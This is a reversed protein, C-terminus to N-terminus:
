FRDSKSIFQHVAKFIDENEKITLLESGNLLTDVSLINVHIASFTETRANTYLPCVLLYHEATESPHGCACVSNTALHRQYLDYNLNSMGQRLRCHQIQNPRDGSYFYPPIKVDNTSLFSKLKSLSTTQQIAIPLNNWLITTSPIFSSQYLNTRHPPVFRELPRRRHYPNITSVLPPLLDSLYNPTLGNIMKFYKLIKHRKRRENLSVFGSEAYLKAHSTGRVLGTIIRIAELNLNELINAQHKTCNDWIIDAYDFIPLIFSKYIRELAKRKLKYKLSHLVNLLLKVKSSVNNIHKDWKCDNQITIGLHKHASTDELLTDCFYLPQTPNQDRKMNLLKTKTENFNVKWKNSWNKITELDENLSEQRVNECQSSNSLSTDDAFLKIVSQINDVIDNIYVLFLLPGLVSGQPVGATVVKEDSNDGKIVVKQKRKKLYSEFWKLLRGRIGIADLKLLLGRHWVRDFAKSIDFYISQSTISKDYNECLSNYISLLQNVTSDGPLFGSQSDTLINNTTLYQLIHRHICREFVKGTCSLLSIPRYNTCDNKNGKKFIPTINATKWLSPFCGDNLCRNFFSTLHPVIIDVSAKLLRNHIRDPGVAKNNELNKIVNRVESETLTIEQLEQPKYNVHPLTDDNDQLTSQQIFFDNLVNAKSKNSYHLEGNSLIPPIEDSDMGKKCMYKNVVKWWEKNGFLQPNNITDNLEDYYQKKRKRIQEIVYNRFNRFTAWDHESNTIKAKRHIKNRRKLLIKIERTIWPVDKPRVTITKSPMCEQAIQFLTDTFLVCSDDISHENFIDQWNQDELKTRFTDINLKEYNYITRKFSMRFDINCNLFIAPVSHDSCFASLVKTNKVINYSQTLVLDLCSSTTETTRTPSDILQRLQFLNVIDLLHRSPNDLWDTNFDGLVFFKKQDNNAKDISDSILNWYDVNANPPRYFSGILVNEQNLKTQIWVAELNDVHLDPRAKLYLTNKVYIAVGGHPDNPRDRRVPPHFGALLLDSNDDLPSLWTESVTLIDFNCCEAEFLDIKNRLSRANVHVVCLGDNGNQTPGPNAEIDGSKLLLFVNYVCYPSKCLVDIFDEQNSKTIKDKVITFALKHNLSYITLIYTYVALATSYM